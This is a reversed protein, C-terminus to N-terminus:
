KSESKTMAQDCCFIEPNGGANTVTVVNGCLECTFVEGVNAM